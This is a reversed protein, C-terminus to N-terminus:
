AEGEVQQSKLIKPISILVKFGEERDISLTGNVFDLRERMGRLGNEKELVSGPTKGIGNDSIEVKLGDTAEDIIVKCTSAQSHKVVNTVSEKLCMCVIDEVLTPTELLQQDGQLDLTIEAANLIKSVHILEDELKAGRMNTVMERVEKLATRATQNIDDLEVQAKDTDKVILKSALDSKLGIMSLKQGLTDHLDRAIRQREEFVLLESIKENAFRLEGELKERKIRNYTNIPLLIVGLITIMIFPLQAYFMETQTYFSGYVAGITTTLHIIYLTLFGSKKQVNGIFYALFLSVYVYGYFLTMGISIVMKISAWVYVSWGDSLFSLRYALFFTLILVIGLVIEITSNSRFIFFFPLFSFIIWVYINLSLNRPIINFWNQM